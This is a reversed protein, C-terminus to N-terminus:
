LDIADFGDCYTPQHRCQQSYCDVCLGTDDISNYNNKDGYKLSCSECKLPERPEKEGILSKDLM